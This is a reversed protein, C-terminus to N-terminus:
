GQIKLTSDQVPMIEMIGHRVGFERCEAERWMFIDAAATHREHMRDQFEFTGLGYIHVRDGFRLGHQREIDRSLAIIGKRVRQNSATIFPTSDTCKKLPPYATIRVPITNRAKQEDNFSSLGSSGNLRNERKELARGQYIGIQLGVILVILIGTIWLLANLGKDDFM